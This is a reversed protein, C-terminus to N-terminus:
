KAKTDNDEDHYKINFFIRDCTRRTETQFWKIANVNFNRSWVTELQMYEISKETLKEIKNRRRASKSEYVKLSRNNETAVFYKQFYNKYFAKKSSM